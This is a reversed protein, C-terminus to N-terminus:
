SLEQAFKKKFAQEVIDAANQTNKIYDCNNVIDFEYPVADKKGFVKIKCGTFFASV